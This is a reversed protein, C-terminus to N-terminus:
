RALPPAVSGLEAASESTSPLGGDARLQARSSTGEDEMFGQSSRRGMLSSRGSVSSSSASDGYAGSNNDATCLMGSSQQASSVRKQQASAASSLQDQQQLGSPEEEQCRRSRSSSRPLYPQAVRGGTTASRSPALPQVPQSRGSLGGMGLDVSRNLSAAIDSSSQRGVSICRSTSPKGAPDATYAAYLKEMRQSHTASSSSPAQPRSSQTHTHSATPNLTPLPRSSPYGASAVSSRTIRPAAFSHFSQLPAANSRAAHRLGSEFQICSSTTTIVSLAHHYVPSMDSVEGHGGACEDADVLM